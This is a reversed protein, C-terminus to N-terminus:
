ERHWDQNLRRAALFFLGSALLYFGMGYLISYRLSDAGYRPVLYDSLVGLFWTGFGIGILNNVFLFIASATTRMTAPVLHQVASLTPGLWMLSLAQPVVFLFFVLPLSPSMIGGIFFPLSILFAVAPVRAYNGKDNAGFRDGLSGGFWVGVMGGFFLIGAYFISRDVLALGHSREFFSPLWFALGYGLISSCSAGLALLWFSPKQFLLALADGLGPSATAQSGLPRADFGGRVPERVTLKFLPALLLGALGCIIFAWRWGIQHAILGGFLVGAAMGIPIGFSYAALARAREQPPFYDSILSYAPAVGGAEGVGVGLRCLFLQWFGTAFGCLATFGSWITLAGTMIWTRSKRDAVLAIPIGLATYFLAFAMGGMLGLQQDSLGLETKIASALIGLIQRDIFNFIYVLILILLVYYRYYPRQGQSVAAQM